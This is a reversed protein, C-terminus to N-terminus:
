HYLFSFMLVIRFTNRRNFFFFFEGEFNELNAWFFLRFSVHILISIDLPELLFSKIRYRMMLVNRRAEYGDDIHM